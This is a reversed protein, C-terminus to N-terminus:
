RLLALERSRPLLESCVPALEFFAGANEGLALHLQSRERLARRDSLLLAALLPTADRLAFGLQGPALLLEARPLGFHELELRSKGSLLLADPTALTRDLDTLAFQVSPV